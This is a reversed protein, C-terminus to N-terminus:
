WRIRKKLLVQQAPAYGDAAAKRYWLIATRPNKDVGSGAEYMEGLEFEAPLLKNGAAKHLWAFAMYEDRTVGLGNKYMMALNYQANAYEQDAALRFLRLAEKYDQKVGQSNAYMVGLNYQANALDQDAAKKFWYVAKVPDNPVGRGFRYCVGLFNCGPAYGSEAAETFLAAAKTYDRAYGAEGNYYKEALDYQQQASRPKKKVPKAAPATPVQPVAPKSVAPPAEAAKDPKPAASSRVHIKATLGQRPAASSEVHSATVVNGDIAKVRWTGVPLEMGSSTVYVLDAQDGIQVNAPDAVEIKVDKDEVSIVTGEVMGAPCSAIISFYLLVAIVLIRKITLFALKM